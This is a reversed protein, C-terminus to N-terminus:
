KQVNATFRKCAYAFCTMECPRLYSADPAAAAGRGDRAGIAPAARRQLGAGPTLPESRRRRPAGSVPISFQVGRVNRCVASLRSPRLGLPRYGVRGGPSIGGLPVKRLARVRRCLSAFSRADGARVARICGSTLLTAPM